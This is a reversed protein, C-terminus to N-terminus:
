ILIKDEFMNVKLDTLIKANKKKLKLIFYLEICLTMLEGITFLSVGLFLGMNGGIAGFLEILVMQPAETSETYSLSGYFINVLAFSDKVVDNVIQKTVFDKRLSPRENVYDVYLNGVIQFSATSYKIETTNCELPCLPICENQIYDNSLYKKEFTVQNCELELDTKCIFANYLSLLFINTCNCHKISLKQFCQVLCTHQNYQYDSHYILDYLDSDLSKKEGNPLDCASYPKTLYSEFKRQINIDTQFGSAVKVGDFNNELYTGNEIRVILGLGSYISNLLTLNEHFGAYFEIQLGYYLDSISSELTEIRGGTLNFGSNFIYCNGYNADFMWLFDASSCHLNNFRCSVLLDSLNHGLKKRQENTLDTNMRAISIDLIKKILQRKEEYTRNQIETTEFISVNPAVEKNISKLFQIAYETQFQNNSCITIKPFPAPTEFITRTNTSVEFKFYQMFTGIIMFAAISTAVIVFLLSFLKLILAEARYVNLCAQVM